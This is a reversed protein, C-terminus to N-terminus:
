VMKMGNNEKEETIAGSQVVKSVPLSEKRQPEVAPLNEWEPPAVPKLPEGTKNEEKLLLAPKAFEIKETEQMWEEYIEHAKDSVIRVGALTMKKFDALTEVGSVQLKCGNILDFRLKECGEFYPICFCQVGVESSLRALRSLTPIPYDKDVFTKVVIKKNWALIRRLEKQIEQFKGASILSPTIQVTLEKVGQRKAYRAEHLKISTAVEGSLVCDLRVKKETPTKEKKALKANLFEKVSLFQGGKKAQEIGKFCKKTLILKSSPLQLTGQKLRLTRECVRQIDEASLLSSSSKALASTIEDVLKKRKFARYEEVDKTSLVVGQVTDKVTANEVNTNTSENAKTLIQNQQTQHEMRQTHSM